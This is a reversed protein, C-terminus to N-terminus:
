GLGGSVSDLNEYVTTLIYNLADGMMDPPIVLAVVVMTTATILAGAYEVVGQGRHAKLLVNVAPTSASINCSASTAQVMGM